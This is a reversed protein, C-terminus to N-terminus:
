KSEGTPGRDPKESTSCARELADTRLTFGLGPRLYARGGLVGYDAARTVRSCGLKLTDGERFQLAVKSVDRSMRAGSPVGREPGALVEVSAM